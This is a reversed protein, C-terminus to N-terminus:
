IQNDKINKMLENLDTIVEYPYEDLIINTFYLIKIGNKDCLKRKLLDREKIENLTKEGGYFDSSIFHQKGQCEIAIKINPIYFDLYLNNINKLWDFTKEVEFSYGNEKLLKFVQLELHSSGCISCGYGDLHNKPSQWFEGHKPCIICVKTEKNIYNVKSYDYKDGHVERAKTIFWDIGKSQTKSKHELSCEKCGGGKLHWKPEQWFEGHKPCIICVKTYSNIYNVKSYDYKDGHVERAKEIFEKTTSSCRDACDKAYCKVCGHGDMHSQPRQWFEGHEPCIICVKTHNNVYETKSYDYKDGHVKRSKEIFTETTLKKNKSCLSCGRGILHCKPSQWFEGHEPCIICVKTYSNIYEVKSYDYKDGHVKKAKEIFEETKTM